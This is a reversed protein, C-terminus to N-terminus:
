EAIDVAVRTYGANRLPTVVAVVHEFPAHPHAEVRISADKAVGAKELTEVLREPRIERNNVFTKGNRDIGVNVGTETLADGANLALAGTDAPEARVTEPVPEGTMRATTESRPAACGVCLCIAALWLDLQKRAHKM